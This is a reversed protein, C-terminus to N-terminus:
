MCTTLNLAAKQTSDVCISISLQGIGYACCLPHNSECDASQTCLRLTDTTTCSVPISTVCQAQCSTDVSQRTCTPVSGGALVVSACCYPVGGNCAAPSSCSITSNSMSCAGAVCSLTVGGDDPAACCVDGTACPSGPCPVAGSTAEAGADGPSAEQTVAEEGADSAQETDVFSDGPAPSDKAGGGGGDSGINLDGIGILGACGGALFLAAGVAAAVLPVPYVSHM